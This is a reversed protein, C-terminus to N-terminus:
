LNHPQKVMARWRLLVGLTPCHFDVWRFAFLPDRFVRCVIIFSLIRKDDFVMLELYWPYFMGEGLINQQGLNKLKLSSSHNNILKLIYADFRYIKIM